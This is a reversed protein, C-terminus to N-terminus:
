RAAETANGKEGQLQALIGDRDQFQAAAKGFTDAITSWIADPLDQYNILRSKGPQHDDLGTQYINGLIRACYEEPSLHLTIADM